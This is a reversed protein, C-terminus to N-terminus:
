ITGSTSVPNRRNFGRCYFGLFRVQTPNASMGPNYIIYVRKKQHVILSEGWVGLTSVWPQYFLGAKLLNEVM